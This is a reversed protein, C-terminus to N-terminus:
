QGRGWPKEGMKLVLGAYQLPLSQTLTQIRNPVLGFYLPTDLLPDFAVLQSVISLFDTNM